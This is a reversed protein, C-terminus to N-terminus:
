RPRPDRGRADGSAACRRPRPGARGPAFASWCGARDALVVDPPDQPDAVEGLVEPDVEGADPDQELELLAEPGPDQLGQEVFGLGVPLGVRSRRAPLPRWSGFALRSRREVLLGRQHVSRHRVLGPCAVLRLPGSRGDRSSGSTASRSVTIKGSIITGRWTPGRCSRARRQVRGDGLPPGIASTVWRWASWSSM